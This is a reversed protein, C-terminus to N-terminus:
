REILPNKACDRIPKIGVAVLQLARRRVQFESLSAVICCLWEDARADFCGRSLRGKVKQHEGLLGKRCSSLDFCVTGHYSLRM